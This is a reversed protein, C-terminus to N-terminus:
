LYKVKGIKLRAPVTLIAVSCVAWTVRGMVGKGPCDDCAAPTPPKVGERGSSTTTLSIDAHGEVEPTIPPPRARRSPPSWGTLDSEGAMPHPLAMVALPLCLSERKTNAEGAAVTGGETDCFSAVAEKDSPECGAGPELASRNLSESYVTRGSRSPSAGM